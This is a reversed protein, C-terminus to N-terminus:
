WEAEGPTIKLDAVKETRLVRLVVAKGVVDESLAKRLEYEDTAQSEGLRLIIDGL